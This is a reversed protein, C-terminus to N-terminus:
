DGFRFPCVFVVIQMRCKANRREGQRKRDERSGEGDEPERFASLPTYQRVSMVLYVDADVVRFLLSSPVCPRVSDVDKRGIRGFSVTVAPCASALSSNQSTLGGRKRQSAM